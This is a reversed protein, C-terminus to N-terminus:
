KARPLYKMYRFVYHGWRDTGDNPANVAWADLDVDLTGVVEFGVKAYAGWAGESSHVWIYINCKDAMDTGWKLLGAGVGRRQFTPSVSLSSVYMCKAGPPMLKQMWKEMDADTMAELKKISEDNDDRSDDGTREQQSRTEEAKGADPRSGTHEDKPLANRVSLVEEKEFGRFGWAAWGMIAGTTDDVAKVVVMTEANIYRPLEINWMDEMNYPVKGQAKLETHRDVEFSAHGIKALALVDELTAAVITFSNSM